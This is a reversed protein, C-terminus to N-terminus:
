EFDGPQFHDTNPLQLPLWFGVYGYCHTLTKDFKKLLMFTGDAVGVLANSAKKVIVMTLHPKFKYDPKYHECMTGAFPEGYLWYYGPTTPPESSWTSNFEQHDHSNM